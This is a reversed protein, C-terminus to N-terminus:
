EQAGNPQHRGHIYGDAEDRKKGENHNQTDHHIVRDHQPFINIRM